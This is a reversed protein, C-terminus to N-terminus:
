PLATLLEDHIIGVNNTIPDFPFYMAAGISLTGTALRTVGSAMESVTQKWHHTHCARRISDLSQHILVGGVVALTGRLALDTGSAIAVESTIQFCVHSLTEQSFLSTNYVRNSTIECAEQFTETLSGSLFGACSAISQQIPIM